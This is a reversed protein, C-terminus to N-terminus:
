TDTISGLVPMRHRIRDWVILEKTEDVNKREGADSCSNWVDEIDGDAVKQAGGVIRAM